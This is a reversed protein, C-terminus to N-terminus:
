QNGRNEHPLAEGIFRTLSAVFASRLSLFSEDVNDDESAVSAFSYYGSIFGAIACALRRLRANTIPASITSDVLREICKLYVLFPTELGAYSIDLTLDARGQYYLVFDEWRRSFFSIHASIIGDLMEKLDQKGECKTEIEEVLESLVSEMLHRIVEDKSEFHYYFSGRGVDARVTIDDITANALGKETLVSRAAALLKDRTRGYSRQQRSQKKGTLNADQVIMYLIRRVSSDTKVIDDLEVNKDLVIKRKKRLEAGAGAANSRRVRLTM